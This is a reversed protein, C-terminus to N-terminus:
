QTQSHNSNFSFNWFLNTLNQPSDTKFITITTHLFSNIIKLSPFLTLFTFFLNSPFCFLTFYLLLFLFILSYFISKILGSTRDHSPTKDSLSHLSPSTMASTEVNEPLFKSSNLSLKTKRKLVNKSSTIAYLNPWNIQLNLSHNKSILKISNTSQFPNSQNVTPLIIIKPSKKSKNVQPSTGCVM